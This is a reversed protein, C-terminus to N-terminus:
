AQGEKMLRAYERAWRALEEAKRAEDELRIALMGRSTTVKVSNHAAELVMSAYAWQKRASTATLETTLPSPAGSPGTWNSM